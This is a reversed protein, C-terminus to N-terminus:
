LFWFVQLAPDMGIKDYYTDLVLDEPGGLPPSSEAPSQIQNGSCLVRATCIQTAVPPIPTVASIPPLRLVETFAPLESPVLVPCLMRVWPM